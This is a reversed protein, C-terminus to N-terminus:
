KQIQTQQKNTKAMSVLVSLTMLQSIATSPYNSYREMNTIAKEVENHFYYDLRDVKEIKQVISSLSNDQSLTYATLENLFAVKDEDVVIGIDILEKILDVPSIKKMASVFPSANTQFLMQMNRFIEERTSINQNNKIDLFVAKIVNKEDQHIYDKLLALAEEKTLGLETLTTAQKIKEIEKEIIVENHTLEYLKKLLEERENNFKNVKESKYRSLNIYDQQVNKIQKGNLLRKFPNSTLMVLDKEIQKLKKDISEFNEQKEEQKIEEMRKNIEEKQKLEEKKSSILVEKITELM